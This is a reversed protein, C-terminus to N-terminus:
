EYKIQYGFYHRAPVKELISWQVIGKEKKSVM